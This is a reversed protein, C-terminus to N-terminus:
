LKQVCIPMRTLKSERAVSYKESILVNFLERVVDLPMVGMIEFFRGRNMISDKRFGSSVSLKLSQLMNVIKRMDGKCLHIVEEIVGEEIELGESQCIEIIRTKADKLPIQKFKFRM